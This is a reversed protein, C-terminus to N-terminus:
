GDSGTAVNEAHRPHMTSTGGACSTAARDALGTISALADAHTAAIADARTREAKGFRVTLALGARLGAEIDSEKDGILMSAGLDIGLERAADQLMGPNPKRRECERKYEGIGHLAHHPCFYVAAIDIGREAFQQTMWTTLAHFAQETYLGRGIGAQNTVVVILYGLDRAHRCLDFIGDIFEFQDPRHVYGHDVNIVGDRDLFLARRKM